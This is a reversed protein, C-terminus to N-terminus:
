EEDKIEGEDYGPFAWVNFSTEWPNSTIINFIFKGNPYREKLIELVDKPKDNRGYYGNGYVSELKILGAAELEENGLLLNASDYNNILTELYAKRVEPNNRTCDGCIFGAGEYDIWYDSDYYSYAPIAKGCWYCTNWDDAYGWNGLQDDLLNELDGYSDFGLEKMLGEKDEIIYFPKGNYETAFIYSDGYLELIDKVQTPEINLDEKM